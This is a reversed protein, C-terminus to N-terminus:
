RVVFFQSDSKKDIIKAILLMPVGWCCLHQLVIVENYMGLALSCLIAFFLYVVEHWYQRINMAMVNFKIAFYAFSYSFIPALVFGFYYYGNGITSPIQGFVGNMRNYFVPLTEGAKGFITTNFPIAIQMSAVFHEFCSGGPLNYVAAVNDVGTFYANILMSLYSFVNDSMYLSRTGTENNVQYRVYFYVVIIGVVFVSAIRLMKTAIKKNLKSGALLVVLASIISEAFTATVFIFQLFVFGLIVCILSNVGINKKSIKGIIYVPLMIRVINFVFSFLTSVIRLISGVNQEEVRGGVTFETDSLKFINMFSDMLQPRLMVAIFLYLLLLNMVLSARYSFKIGFSENIVCENKKSSIIIATFIAIEEYVMLFIGSTANEAINYKMISVFDGYVMLLPHLCYRMFSIGFILITAVMIPMNGIKISALLFVFVSVAPLIPLMAYSKPLDTALMVITFAVALITMVNLVNRNRVM